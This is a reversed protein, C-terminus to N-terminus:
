IFEFISVSVNCTCVQNIEMTNILPYWIGEQWELIGSSYGEMLVSITVILMLLVAIGKVM